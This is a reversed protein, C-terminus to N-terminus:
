FEFEKIRETCGATIRYEENACMEDSALASAFYSKPVVKRM